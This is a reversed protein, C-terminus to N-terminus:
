QKGRNRQVSRQSLSEQKEKSNKPVRCEFPYIKGKRRDNQWVSYKWPWLLGRHAEWTACKYIIQRGICSGCTWDRPFIGPIPFLLGCCYEQRAFGMPLPAKFGVSWPTVSDSVVSAISHMRHERGTWSRQGRVTMSRKITETTRHGNTDSSM